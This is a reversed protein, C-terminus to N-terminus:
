KLQKLREDLEYIATGAKKIDDIWQRHELSLQDQVSNVFSKLIEEDGLLLGNRVKDLRSRLKKLMEATRHYREENRRDQNVAERNMVYNAAAQFILALAAIIGWQSYGTTAGLFGALGAALGSFGLAWTSFTIAKDAKNRHQMGRVNYYNIQLDLQFRKFFELKLLNMFIVEDNKLNEFKTNTVLNFYELRYMEAISRRNMWKELLKRRKILNLWIGAMASTVMALSSLIIFIFEQIKIQQFSDGFM